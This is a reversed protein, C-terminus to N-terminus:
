ALATLMALARNITKALLGLRTQLQYKNPHCWLLPRIQRGGLVAQSIGQAFGRPQLVKLDAQCTLPQGRRQILVRRDIRYIQLQGRRKGRCRRLRGHVLHLPHRRLRGGLRGLRAPHGGGTDRNRLTPRWYIHDRSQHILLIRLKILRTPLGARGGTNGESTRVRGRCRRVLSEQSNLEIVRVGLCGETGDETHRLLRRM